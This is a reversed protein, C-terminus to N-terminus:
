TSIQCTFRNGYWILSGSNASANTFANRSNDCAVPTAWCGRSTAGGIFMWVMLGLSTFIGVLLKEWALGPESKERERLRKKEPINGNSGDEM